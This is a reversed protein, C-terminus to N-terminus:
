RQQSVLWFETPKHVEPLPATLLETEAAGPGSGGTEGGTAQGSPASRGADGIGIGRAKRMQRPPDAPSTRCRRRLAGGVAHQAPRLRGVPQRGEFQDVGAARPRGLWRGARCGRDPPQGGSAGRFRINQGCTTRPRLIAATFRTSRVPIDPVPLDLTMWASDARPNKGRAARPVFPGGRGGGAGAGGALKGFASGGIPATLPRKAADAASARSPVNQASTRRIQRGTLSM